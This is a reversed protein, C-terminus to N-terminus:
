CLVAWFMLKRGDERKRWGRRGGARCDVLLGLRQRWPYKGSSTSRLHTQRRGQNEDGKASPRNRAELALGRHGRRAQERRCRALPLQRGEGTDRFRADMWPKSPSSSPRHQQGDNREGQQTKLSVKNRGGDEARRSRSRRQRVM